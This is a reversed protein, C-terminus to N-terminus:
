YFFTEKLEVDSTEIIGGQLLTEEEALPRKTALAVACTLFVVRNELENEEYSAEESVIPDMIVKGGAVNIGFLLSIDQIPLTPRVGDVVQGYAFDSKLQVSHFGPHAEELLMNAAASTNGSLHFINELMLPSICHNQANSQRAKNSLSVYIIGFLGINGNIQLCLYIYPKNDFNLM